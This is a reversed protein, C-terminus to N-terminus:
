PTRSHNHYPKCQASDISLAIRTPPLEQLTSLKTADNPCGLLPPSMLKEHDDLRFVAGIPNALQQTTNIRKTDLKKSISPTGRLM